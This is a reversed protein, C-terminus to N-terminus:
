LSQVKLKGNHLFAQQPKKNEPPSMTENLIYCGAISILEAEMNQCFIRASTDGSIGALARGRLSGYVHINGDALLEAGQSVPAVVVLDGNKAYVQQGSRVPQTILTSASPKTETKNNSKNDSTSTQTKAMSLVALDAARAAKHHVPDGSRIGVPIMAQQRLLRVLKAFDIDGQDSSLNQLDIVIPAYQFFKPARAVISGLQSELEDFDVRKLQLVTLTFLSGKLQFTNTAVTDQM